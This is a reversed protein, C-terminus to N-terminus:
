TYPDHDIESSRRHNGTNTRWRGARAFARWNARVPISAATAFVTEVPNDRGMWRIPLLTQSDLCRGEPLSLGELSALRSESTRITEGRVLQKREGVIKFLFHLRSAPRLKEM